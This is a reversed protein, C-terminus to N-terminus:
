PPRKFRIGTTSTTADPSIVEEYIHIRLKPSIYLLRHLGILVTIKSKPKSYATIAVM